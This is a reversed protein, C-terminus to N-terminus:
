GRGQQVKQACQTEAAQDDMRRHMSLKRDLNRFDPGEQIHPKLKWRYGVWHRYSSM